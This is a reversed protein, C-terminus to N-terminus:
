TCKFFLWPDFKGWPPELALSNFEWALCPWLPHIVLTNRHCICVEPNRRSPHFEKYPCKERFFVSLNADVHAIALACGDVSKMRSCPVQEHPIDGFLQTKPQLLFIVKNLKGFFGANRSSNTKQPLLLTECIHKNVFMKYVLGLGVKYKRMIQYQFISSDWSYFIGTMIWFHLGYNLPTMPRGNEM